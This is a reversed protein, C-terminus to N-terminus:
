LIFAFFFLAATGLIALVFQFEPYCIFGNWIEAFVDKMNSRESLYFLGQFFALPPIFFSVIAFKYTSM